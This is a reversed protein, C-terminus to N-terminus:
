DAQANVMRLMTSNFACNNGRAGTAWTEERCTRKGWTFHFDWVDLQSCCGVTRKGLPEGSAQLVWAEGYLFGEQPQQAGGRSPTALIQQELLLLAAGTQRKYEGGPVPLWTYM